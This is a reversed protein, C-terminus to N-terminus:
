PHTFPETLSAGPLDAPWPDLTTWQLTSFLTGDPDEPAVTFGSPNLTIVGNSIRDPSSGGSGPMGAGPAVVNGVYPLGFGDPPANGNLANAVDSAALSSGGSGIGISFTVLDGVRKLIWQNTHFETGVMDEGAMDRWGTDGVVVKWLDPGVVKVWELAGNTTDTDIYHTGLPMASSAVGDFTQGEPAGTGSLVGGGGSDLDDTTVFTRHHVSM